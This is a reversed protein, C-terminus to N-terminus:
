QACQYQDNLREISGGAPLWSSYLSWNFCTACCRRQRCNDHSCATVIRNPWHSFGLAISSKLQDGHRFTLQTSDHAVFAVIYLTIKSMSLTHCITNAVPGPLGGATPTRVAFVTQNRGRDTWFSSRIGISPGFGYGDGDVQSIQM